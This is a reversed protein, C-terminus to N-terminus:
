AAATGVGRMDAGAGTTRPSFSPFLSRGTVRLAGPALGTVTWWGVRSPVALPWVAKQTKAFLLERSVLPVRVKVGPTVVWVTRTWSRSQWFLRLRPKSVKLRFRDALLVSEEITLAEVWTSM